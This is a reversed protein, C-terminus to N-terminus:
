ASTPVIRVRTGCARCDANPGDPRGAGEGIVVEGRRAAEQAAQGAAAQGYVVPRMTRLGQCTPCQVPAWPALFIVPVADSLGAAPRPAYRPEERPANRAPPPAAEPAMLQFRFTSDGIQLLAGNALACSDRVPRDDVRTGNRSNLDELLYGAGDRVIRAHHRSVRADDLSIDNSRSRGITVVAADLSYEGKGLGSELVLRGSVPQPQRQPEEYAPRRDPPQEDYAPRQDEYPARRNDSGHRQDRYPDRSDEYPSRRDDYQPQRDDYPAPESRVSEIRAGCEICFPFEDPNDNACAPCRV